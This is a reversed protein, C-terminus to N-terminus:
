GAQLSAAGMREATEELDEFTSSVIHWQREVIGEVGDPLPASLARGYEALVEVEGRLCECLLADEALPRPWERSKRSLNLLANRRETKDSLVGGEGRIAEELARAFSARQLACRGLLERLGSDKLSRRAGRLLAESARSVVALRILFPIGPHSNRQM